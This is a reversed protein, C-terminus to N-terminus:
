TIIYINVTKKENSFPAPVNNPRWILDGQPPDRPRQKRKTGVNELSGAPKEKTMKLLKSWTEILLFQEGFLKILLGGQYTTQPPPAQSEPLGRAGAPTSESASPFWHSPSSAPTNRPAEISPQALPPPQEFRCSSKKARCKAVGIMPRPLQRSSQVRGTELSGARGWLM